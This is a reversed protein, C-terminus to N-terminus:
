KGALMALLDLASLAGGLILFVKALTAFTNPKESARWAGVWGWIYAPLFFLVCIKEFPGDIMLRQVDFGLIAGVFGFSFGVVVVSVFGLLQSVLIYNLWYSRGLGYEGQWHKSFYNM